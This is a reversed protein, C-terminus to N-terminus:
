VLEELKLWGLDILVQTLVEAMCDCKTEGDEGKFLQLSYTIDMAHFLEHVFSVLIPMDARTEADVVESIRITQMQYDYDGRWKTAEKFTYPFVVKVEHCGIKVKKPLKVDCGWGPTHEKRCGRDRFM